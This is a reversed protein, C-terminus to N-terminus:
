LIKAAFLPTEQRNHAELIPHRAHKFQEFPTEQKALFELFEETPRSHVYNTFECKNTDIAKVSLDWTVQLITCGTRIFSDSVSVFRLHYNDIIEKIYHLVLISGGFV